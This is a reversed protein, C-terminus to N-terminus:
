SACINTESTVANDGVQIPTKVGEWDNGIVLQLVPGRVKGKPADPPPSSPTFPTAPGTPVKGTEPAIQGMIKGTLIKAYDWGPGTYRIMTKPQDTNDPRRADGVGTVAFGQAALAEAVEKALGTTNTGNFVQVKVQQPKTALPKSPKAGPSAAASPSTTPTVETDSRIANFLNDADPQKWVVRAKPDNPDPIWPVTTAKFGKATLKSASQAIQILTDTNLNDDMTVSEATAEIFKQLKGVDTLLARSTAKKVVQSIFVQQRKIRGIDSGDGIGYRLRVYGLAAEGRVVQRGAPLSLKSKKDNVPQPLCIEIGGLANVINKFGTFDVKVFHDIRIKTLDEITRRTCIMGGESFASNIMALHPPMVAGTKTNKCTSIMVMSDRPFSILTAGDRDPSVHLLMITDTREGLSVMKQGYRKNDGARSDSGVLLVNIAGTQNEPRNKDIEDTSKERSILDMTSRYTKYATLTGAALVTTMVISVWGWVGPGRRAGGGGDGSEGGRGGGGRRGRRGSGGSGGSGGSDVSDYASTAAAEFAAASEEDGGRRGRRRRPQDEEYLGGGDASAYTRTDAGAPHGGRRRGRSPEYEEPGGYSDQYADGYSGDGYSGDYSENYSDGYSGEYSSDGRRGRRGRAGAPADYGGSPAGGGYAGPNQPGWVKQDAPVSPPQQNRASARRRESM